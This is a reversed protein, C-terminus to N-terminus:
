LRKLVAEATIRFHSANWVAHGDRMLIIQPSEHRVDLSEAVRRTLQRQSHVDLIYIPLQPARQEVQSLERMTVSSIPCTTSHKFLLAVPAHLAEDLDAVTTIPHM